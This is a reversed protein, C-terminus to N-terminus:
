NQFSWTMQNIHASQVTTVGNSTSYKYSSLTQGNENMSLLRYASDYNYTMCSVECVKTVQYSSGYYISSTRSKGDSPTEVVKAILRNSTNITYVYSDWSTGQKSKITVNTAMLPASSSGYDFSIFINFTNEPSMIDGLSILDLAQAEEDKKINLVNESLIMEFIERDEKNDINGFIAISDLYTKSTSTYEFSFNMFSNSTALQTESIVTQYGGQPEYTNSFTAMLTGSRYWRAHSILYTGQLYTYIVTDNNSAAESPICGLLYPGESIFSIPAGFIATM